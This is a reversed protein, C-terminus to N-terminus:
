TFRGVCVVTVNAGTTIKWAGSVSIAGIPITFPVLNSVSSAGGAFSVIATANDLITVVGPSTTGPTAVCHSLFDGTAGTAGMAQATQSAAVTEYANAAGISSNVTTLRQNNRKTLAILTCTGNDTSCASDAQAGVDVMAGSAISGSALAGSAIAGSAITGSAAKIAVAVQDSAIVVPSSNASTASGNANANTVNTNLAGASTCSVVTSKGSTAATYSTIYLCGIPTESTSAQTFTAQDALATGGSGAGSVINVNLSGATDLQLSSQQTTTLSLPTSNYVGGVQMSNAAATGANKTGRMTLLDVMAGAAISGSALAGSAVSGSALAGSAFAGSAVSGSALAGSSYSGSAATIAGGGGSGGGGGGSGTPLGTGGVMNVTTTSASTICTLQTSAGVTFAFWSNPPILQDSTTSSAGLKCYAGNTAGVNSAVVVAGAPLSGTDGSTTVAIPTGTSAPAFGSISASVSATVPMPVAASVPKCGDIANSVTVCPRVTTQAHIPTVFQLLAAFAAGLIVGWRM